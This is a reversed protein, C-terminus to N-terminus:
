AKKVKVTYESGDPRRLVVDLKRDYAFFKYDLVDMIQNGNISIITDGTHVKDRLPSTEDVSKIYNDEM